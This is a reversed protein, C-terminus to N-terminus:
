TQVTGAIRFYHEGAVAQHVAYTIASPKTALTKLILKWYLHGRGSFGIKSISRGFVLFNEWKRRFSVKQKVNPSLWSIMGEIREYYNKPTFLETRVRRVGDELEHISMNKPAFNTHDGNEGIFASLLRGSAALKRSLPTGDLAVVAGLMAEPINLASVFRTMKDFIDRKDHDFGIMFGASAKIGYSAFRRVVEVPDRRVNQKKGVDNLSATEPTEIGLFTRDINVERFLRMMEDSVTVDCQVMFRFPYGHLEQWFALAKLMKPAEQKNGTVNDDNIFVTGDKWGADYLAQIEWVFQWPDKCRTKRGDKICVCCFDCAYPCGRSYQLMATQYDDLNVLHFAPIPTERLDSFRLYEGNDNKEIQYVPKPCGKELDELFLPLMIEAENLIFHDVGPTKETQLTFYPGGGIVKTGVEKCWSITEEISEKHIAMGSLLAYDAWRLDEETLEQINQDVVRVDWGAKILMAAVTLETLPLFVERKRLYPWLVHGYGWFTDHSNKPVIFLGKIRESTQM